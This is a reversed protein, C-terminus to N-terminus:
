TTRDSLLEPAFTGLILGLAGEKIVIFVLVEARFPETVM